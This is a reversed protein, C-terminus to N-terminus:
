IVAPIATCSMTDTTLFVRFLLMGKTSDDDDDDDDATRVANMYVRLKFHTRSVSPTHSSSLPLPLIPCPYSLPPSFPLPPSILSFPLPPFSALTLPPPLTSTLLSPVPSFRLPM